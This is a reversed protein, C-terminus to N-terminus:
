GFVEEGGGMGGLVGAGGLVKWAVGVKGGEVGVDEGEVRGIWSGLAARVGRVDQRPVRIWVDRGATKLIDVPIATGMTGLYTRLASTLLSSVLLPSVDSQPTSTSSSPFSPSTLTLHLYSWTPKRFTSQHLIHAPKEPKPAPQPTAADPMSTDVNNDTHAPPSTPAANPANDQAM